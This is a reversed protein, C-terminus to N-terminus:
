EYRLSKIPNNTAAKLAQFVVSLIAVLLSIGGSIAFVTWSINTKYAFNQLWKNMIFWAIPWAIINSVIVLKTFDLSLMLVINRVSSGLIKRVGIEKTRRQAMFTALGILGICSIFIALVAFTNFLQGLQNVSKYLSKHQDDLFQYEFPFNPAFNLITTKINDITETPNNTNIKIAMHLMDRSDLFIFLPEIPEQLPEFNFDKIVGIVPYENFLKVGIPNELNLAKVASENLVAVATDTTFKKEFFRGEVLSINFTKLFDYSGTMMNVLVKRGDDNGTWEDIDVSGIAHVGLHSSTVCVSNIDPYQELENKILDYKENIEKNLPCYVINEKDFGLDKNNIYNMQRSVIITSFILIISLIFQFIVLIRRLLPSGSTKNNKIVQVPTISSLYFAPYSGALLGTIVTIIFLVPVLVGNFLVNYTISKGSIENFTQLMLTAFGYAIVLAFISQFVSETLFQFILSKRSAGTVKRLGIEKGRLSARATALNMYNICAIVLIFIAILGFIYIYVIVGGGNMDRLHIDEFTQLQLTPQWTYTYYQDIYHEIKENFANVDINDPLMLYTNISWNIWTEVNQYPSFTQRTEFLVFFDSSFSRNKPFDKVVASVKFNEQNNIVLTKNIPNEDGFYKEAIKESIIISSPDNLASTKEGQLFELTLMDLMEEDIYTLKEKFILNNSKVFQYGGDYYRGAIQIEPFSEKMVKALPPPTVPYKKGKDYTKDVLIVRYLNKSNKHNKNVSLEDQIWLSILIVCVLGIALSALNILSYGKYRLINRFAIKIYNKIM